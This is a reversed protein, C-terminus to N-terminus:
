IHLKGMIVLMINSSMELKKKLMKIVFFIFQIKSFRSSEKKIEFGNEHNPVLELLEM